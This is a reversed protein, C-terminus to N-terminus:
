QRWQFQTLDTQIPNFLFQILLLEEEVKRESQNWDEKM